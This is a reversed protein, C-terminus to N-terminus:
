NAFCPTTKLTVRSPTGFKMEDVVYTKNANIQGIERQRYRLMSAIHVQLKSSDRVQVHNLPLNWNELNGCNSGSNGEGRIVIEGGKIIARGSFKLSEISAIDISETNNGQQLKIQQRQANIELLTLGSTTQRQKTILKVKEPLSVPIMAVNKGQAFSPHQVFSQLEFGAWGLTLIGLPILFKKFIAAM